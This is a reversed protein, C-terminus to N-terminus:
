RRRNSELLKLWLWCYCRCEIRCSFEMGM